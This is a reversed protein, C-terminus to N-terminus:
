EPKQAREFSVAWVWPNSEWSEAGNIQLWLTKFDEKLQPEAANYDITAQTMSRAFPLPRGVGERLVDYGTIDHLREAKVATIKLWTRCYNRPMFRALRKYWGVGGFKNMVIRKKDGITDPFYIEQLAPDDTHVFRVKQLGTPTFEGEIDEWWGYAYHEERVWLFDGPKGYPCTDVWSPGNNNKLGFEYYIRDDYPIALRPVDKTNSNGVYYFRDPAAVLDAIKILRRTMTKRGEREAQIMTSSFLIPTKKM